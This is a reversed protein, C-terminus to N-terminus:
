FLNEEHKQLSMSFNYKQLTGTIKRRLHPAVFINRLCYSDHFYKQKGQDGTNDGVDQAITDFEIISLM